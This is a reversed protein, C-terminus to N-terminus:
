DGPPGLFQALPIASARIREMTAGTNDPDNSVLDVPVGLLAELDGIVEMTTFGSFTGPRSFLLDLDSGPQDTGRVVSGFVHLETM